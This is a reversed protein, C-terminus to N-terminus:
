NNRTPLVSTYGLVGSTDDGLAFGHTAADCLITTKAVLELPVFYSFFVDLFRAIMGNALYDGINTHKIPGILFDMMLYTDDTKDGCVMDQGLMSSGLTSSKQYGSVMVLDRTIPHSTLNITVPEDLITELTKATLEVDGVIKHAYHLFLMLKSVLEKPLSRDIDWFEPFIDNFLNETFRRLIKRESLELQIKQNFIENEFPLFFNRCEKEEMKQKKSVRAMDHGTKPAEDPPAHFIAEPLADYIGERTLHIGLIEQGNNLKIVEAHSLDKKYRRQFFGDAMVVFGHQPLGNEILDAIVIEAKIDFSLDNVTDRVDSFDKM